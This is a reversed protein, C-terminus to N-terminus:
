NQNISEISSKAIRLIFNIIFFITTKEKYNKHFTNILKKFNM